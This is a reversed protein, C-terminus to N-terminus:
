GSTRKGIKWVWGPIAELMAIRENTLAPNKTNYFSRQRACWKGLPFDDETRYTAKM